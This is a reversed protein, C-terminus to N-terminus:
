TRILGMEQPLCLSMDRRCFYWGACTFNIWAIQLCKHGVRHFASNDPLLYVCKFFIPCVCYLWYLSFRFPFERRDMKAADSFICFRHYPLDFVIISRVCLGNDRFSSRRQSKCLLAWDSVIFDTYIRIYFNHNRTEYTGLSTSNPQRYLLGWRTFTDVLFLSKLASDSM